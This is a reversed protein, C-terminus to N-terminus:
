TREISRYIGSAFFPRNKLEPLLTKLEQENQVPAGAGGFLDLFKRKIGSSIGSRGRMNLIHRRTMIDTKKCIDDTRDTKPMSIGANKLCIYTRSKDDCVAISQASNFLRFGEEEMLRALGCM